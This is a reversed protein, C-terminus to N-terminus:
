QFIVVRDGVQFRSGPPAVEVITGVGEHGLHEEDEHWEFTHDRYIQHEICIPAIAVKVLAYGTTIKPYPKEALKAQGPSPITLVTNSKSM